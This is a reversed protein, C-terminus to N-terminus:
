FNINIETQVPYHDSYSCEYLTESQTVTKSLGATVFIYDFRYRTGELNGTTKSLASSWTFAKGTPHLLRYSDVLGIKLYAEFLAREAPLFGSLRACYKPNSVDDDTHAVNFDTCIILEKGKKILVAIDGLLKEMFTMKFEYRSGGNPTYLNFLYFDEFEMLIMRGETDDVLSPTHYAVSIPKRKTLVMTGSYGKREAVNDYRDYGELGNLSEQIQDHTARTEQFCLIDADQEQLWGLLGKRTAARIGNINYTVIKM